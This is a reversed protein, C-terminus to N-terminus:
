TQIYRRMARKRDADIKSQVEHAIARADGGGEVIIQIPRVALDRIADALLKTDKDDGSPNDSMYQNATALWTPEFDLGFMNLGAGVQGSVAKNLSGMLGDSLRSRMADDGLEPHQALFDDFGPKTGWVALNGGIQSPSGSLDPLDAAAQTPDGAPAPAGPSGPTTGLDDPNTVEVPVNGAPTVPVKGAKAILDRAEAQKAAYNSGDAFGSRQVAQARQAVSMQERGQVEGLREYYKGIAYTPDMLEDVDGWGMGVQQQMVGVSKHDSGVADHDRQLSEPVNSNAYNKGGSEALMTAVASEIDDDSMNKERGVRVVEAVMQEKTAGKRLNASSSPTSGTALTGGSDGGTSLSSSSSSGGGGISAPWNEVWVPTLGARKADAASNAKSGGGSNGWSSSGSSGSGSTGIGSGIPTGGSSSGLSSTSGTTDIGKSSSSTDVGIGKSQRTHVHDQHGGWDASYYGPQDTGPGVRKGDAVGIKDGTEPNSWIVQELDGANSLLYEAFKQMDGVSGSWDIGRNQGSGEQHGAYTSPKM